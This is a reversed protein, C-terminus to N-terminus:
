LDFPMKYIYEVKKGKLFHNSCVTDVLDRRELPNASIYLTGLRKSLELVKRATPLYSAPGSEDAIKAKEELCVKELNWETNKKSWFEETIKGDAKDTYAQEIRTKLRGIEQKVLVVQTVKAAAEDGSEMALEELILDAVEPTLQVAKLAARFQEDLKELRVYESDPCMHVKRVVTCHGYVFRKKKM